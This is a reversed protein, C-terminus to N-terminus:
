KPPEPLELLEDSKDVKSLTYALNPKFPTHPRLCAAAYPSKLSSQDCSKNRASAVVKVM